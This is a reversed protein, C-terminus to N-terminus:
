GDVALTQVIKKIKLINQSSNRQTAAFHSNAKYKDIDKSSLANIKSALDEPKFSEAVVGLDYEEMLTIMSVSPGIAIAVRGQIFEFIKNPLSFKNNLHTPFIVYLGIDYQNVVKQIDAFPIGPFINIKGDPLKGAMAKLEEVYELDSPMLYMDLTFRDDLLSAVEIMLELKRPRISAGHTILRIKDPNTKVPQLDFFECANDLLDCNIGFEKKYLDIVGPNITTFHDVQSFCQALWKKYKSAIRSYWWSGKDVFYYEHLDCYIRAGTSQKIKLALPLTAIENAVIVDPSLTVLEQYAKNLDSTWYITSFRHLFLNLVHIIKGGTSTDVGRKLVDLEQHVSGVNSKTYGCTVVKFEDGLADIQKLIRPDSELESKSLILVTKL